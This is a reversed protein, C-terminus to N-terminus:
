GARCARAISEAAASSSAATVACIVLEAEALAGRVDDALIIGDRAARARAKVAWASDTVLIDYAVVSRGPVSALAAGFIGGVEGYGVLAVRLTEAAPVVPTESM